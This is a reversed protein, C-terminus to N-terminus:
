KLFSDFNDLDALTPASPSAGLRTVSIAAVKSALDMSEPITQEELLGKCLGAMYIDGAATTDKVNVDYKKQDYIDDQGIYISGKEGLKVIVHEIGLDLLKKGAEIVEDRTKIEYHMLDSLEQENPSIMYIDKFDEASWGKAPGADVVIKKDKEKCVELVAKAAEQSIELNMFVLDAEEILPACNERIETETIAQNGGPAAIIRNNGDKELIIYATGTSVEDFITMSSIDIGENELNERLENGNEDNGVCGYFHTDLGLRKTAIAANSGKGGLAKHTSNAVTTEGQLPSADVELIIDMNVAGIVCLKEM